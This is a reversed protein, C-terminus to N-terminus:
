GGTRSILDSGIVMRNSFVLKEVSYASLLRM